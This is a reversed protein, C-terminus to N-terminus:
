LAKIDDLCIVNINCDEVWKWRLTIAMAVVIIAYDMDEFVFGPRLEFRVTSNKRSTSDFEDVWAKWGPSAKAIGKATVLARVRFICTEKPMDPVVVSRFSRGLIKGYRAFVHYPSLHFVHRFIFVDSVGM